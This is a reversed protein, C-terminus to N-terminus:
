NRGHRRNDCNVFIAWPKRDMIRKQGGSLHGSMVAANDYCQSRCDALPLMDRELTHTILDVISKADKSYVHIFGSFSERVEVNKTVFNVDVYQIIQSMQEHHSADPTTDLMAGYYKNRKISRLLESRVNEAIIGISENQIAPFLSSVAGDHVQAHVLHNRLIPDYEAILKNLSM